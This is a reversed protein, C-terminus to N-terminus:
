TGCGTMVQFTTTAASFTAIRDHEQGKTFLVNQGAAVPCDAATATPAPVTQSSYTRFYGLGAGTNVVQLQDDTKDIPLAASAAVAVVQNTGFHPNFPRLDM